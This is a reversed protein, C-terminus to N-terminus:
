THKEHNRDPICNIQKIHLQIQISHIYTNIGQIRVDIDLNKQVTNGHINVVYVAKKKM